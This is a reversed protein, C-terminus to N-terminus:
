ISTPACRTPSARRAPARRSTEAAACPTPSGSPAATAARRMAVRTQARGATVMGAVVPREAGVLLEAARAVAAEVEPTPAGDPTAGKLPPTPIEPPAVEALTNLADEDLIVAVAGYPEALTDAMAARTAALLGAPGAAPDALHVAKVGLQRLMGQYDPVSNHGGHQRALRGADGVVMLCPQRQRVLFDLGAAGYKLGVQAHLALVPIRRAGGDGAANARAEFGSAMCFAVFETAGHVLGRLGTVDQVAQWIPGENSGTNGSLFHFGTGDGFAPHAIISHIVAEAVTGRRGAASPALDPLPPTTPAVVPEREGTSRLAFAGLGLLVLVGVASAAVWAMTRRPPPAPPPRRSPLSESSPQSPTVQTVRQFVPLQEIEAAFSDRM